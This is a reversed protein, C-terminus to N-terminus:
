APAMNFDSTNCLFCKHQHWTSVGEAPAMNFASMRTGCLVYGTCQPTEKANPLADPWLFWELVILSVQHTGQGNGAGVWTPMTIIIISIIIYTWIYM